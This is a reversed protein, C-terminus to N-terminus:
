TQNSFHCLKSKLKMIQWGLPLIAIEDYSIRIQKSKAQFRLVQM